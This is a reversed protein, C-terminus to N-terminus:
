KLIWEIYVEAFETATETKLETYLGRECGLAESLNIGCANGSRDEEDDDFIYDDYREMKIREIGAIKTGTARAMLEAKKKANEAAEELLKSRIEERSSYSCEVSVDANLSDKEVLKMICDLFALDYPVELSMSKGACTYKHDDYRNKDISCNGAMIQSIDVGGAKFKSLFLESEETVKRVADRSQSERSSFKISINMTDYDVKRRAYGKTIIKGM